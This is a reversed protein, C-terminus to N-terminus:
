LQRAGDHITNVYLQKQTGDIGLFQDFALFSLGAAGNCFSYHFGSIYLLLAELILSDEAIGRHVAALYVTITM